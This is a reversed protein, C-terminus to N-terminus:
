VGTHRAFGRCCNLPLPEVASWACLGGACLYKCRLERDRKCVQAMKRRQESKKRVREGSEIARGAIM